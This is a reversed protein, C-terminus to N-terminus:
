CGGRRHDRLDIKPQYLVTLARHTIAQRLDSLLRVEVLGGRLRVCCRVVPLRSRRPGHWATDTSFTQLGGGLQKASDLASDAHKLLEAARLDPDNLGAVALGASPRMFIVEGDASFPREFAEM